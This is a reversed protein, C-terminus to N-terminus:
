LAAAPNGAPPRIYPLVCPRPATGAKEGPDLRFAQAQVRRRRRRGGTGVGAGASRM